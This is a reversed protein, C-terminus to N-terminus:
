AEGAVSPFAKGLILGGIAGYVFGSLMSVLILSLSGDLGFFGLILGTIVGCGGIIMGGFKAGGQWGVFGGATAWILAVPIIFGRFELMVEFSNIGFLWSFIIPLIGAALSIGAM